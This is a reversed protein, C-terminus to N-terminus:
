TSIGILKTTYMNAIAFESPNSRCERESLMIESEYPFILFFSGRNIFKFGRELFGPGGM